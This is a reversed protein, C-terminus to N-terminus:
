LSCVSPFSRIFAVEYMITETHLNCFLYVFVVIEIQCIEMYFFLLIQLSRVVCTPRIVPNGGASCQWASIIEQVNRQLLSTEWQRCSDYSSHPYNYIRSCVHIAPLTSTELSPLSALPKYVTPHQTNKIPGVRVM